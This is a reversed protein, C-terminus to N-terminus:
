VDLGYITRGKVYIPTEPSNLYKPIQGEDLARGGFAVAAGDRDRRIPIMLRNRFRDALRGDDRQLILGSRLQVPVPVNVPAFRAGLPDRGGAPAYGYGFTDITEASLGRDSLERRARAGAPSALLERYFAVADEHLKVLAEREAAAARDESAGETEPVTM